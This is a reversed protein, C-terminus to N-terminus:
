NPSPTEIRDIVLIDVPGKEPVLRLGLQEQLATFISPGAPDSAAAHAAQADARLPSAQDPTLDPTWSLEYDYLGTLGTKDVVTRGVRLSLNRALAAMTGWQVIFHHPTTGSKFEGGMGKGLPSPEKSPQLKTGGKAIVMAYIPREQQEWRAALRFRNALLAQLMLRHQDYDLKQYAAVDADDVRAEIDYHESSAWPEEKWVIRDDQFVGYAERVLQHMTIGMASFGDRSFGIRWRGDNRGYPRISAVAFVPLGADVNASNVSTVPKRRGTAGSRCNRLLYSREAEPCPRREKPDRRSFHFLKPCLSEPIASAARVAAVHRGVTGRVLNRGVKADPREM